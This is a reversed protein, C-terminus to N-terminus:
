SGNESGCAQSTPSNNFGLVPSFFFFFTSPAKPVPHSPYGGKTNLDLFRNPPPKRPDVRTPHCFLVLLTNFSSCSALGCPSVVSLADLGNGLNFPFAEGGSCILEPSIGLLM